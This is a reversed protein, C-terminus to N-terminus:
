FLYNSVSQRRTYARAIADKKLKQNVMRQEVEAPSERQGDVKVMAQAQKWYVRVREVQKTVIDRFYGESREPLEAYAEGRRKELVLELLMDIVKQNWKSSIKGKTDVHLDEASPGPGTNAAYATIARNDPPIHSSFQEFKAIGFKDRLVEHALEQRATLM